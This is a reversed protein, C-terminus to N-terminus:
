SLLDAILARLTAASFPKELVPNAIEDLFQRTGPTFAGGTVFVVRDALVPREAKLRAHLDVSTLEPMM